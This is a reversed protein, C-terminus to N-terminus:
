VTMENGTTLSKVKARVGFSRLLRKVSDELQEQHQGDLPTLVFIMLRAYMYRPHLREGGGRKANKLVPFCALLPSRM